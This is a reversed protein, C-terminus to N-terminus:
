ETYGLRKAEKVYGCLKCFEVRYVVTSMDILIRKQIYFDYEHLGDPHRKCRQKDSEMDM